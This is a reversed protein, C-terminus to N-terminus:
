HPLHVMSAGFNRSGVPTYTTDSELQSQSGTRLVGSYKIYRQMGLRTSLREGGLIYCHYDELLERALRLRHLIHRRTQSSDGVGPLYVRKYNYLALGVAIIHM